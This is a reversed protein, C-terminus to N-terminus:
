IDLNAYANLSLDAINGKKFEYFGACGIMAANDTCLIPRPYCFELKKEAAKESITERLPINSAVGGALAIRDVCYQEAAKILHDSLVDVVAQQFSAAIDNKNIEIGKQEANHIYNLVSTKVGSFSFDFGNSGMNVRPFNIAYKNGSEAAKQIQPGGPYGFGLVRSVKDFAEGAADDNTKAIVDYEFYSKVYIIHSHGGSAVLCIFPPKFGPNELYNACIHGKIHHVPILPKSLSYSLGKAYSVGVLLAGVLGPGYTVAVADIDEFTLKCDDLAKDVVASINEIHKRSAIEPVVGGYLKHLEIQTNIVNSLINTGDEVVAAATEDCSSEIALIKM